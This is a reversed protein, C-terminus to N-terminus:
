LICEYSKLTILTMFYGDGSKFPVRYPVWLDFYVYDLKNKTKHVIKKNFKVRIQKGFVCHECLDMVEEKYGNLM